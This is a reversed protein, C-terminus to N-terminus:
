RRGIEATLENLANEVKEVIEDIDSTRAILAPSFVLVDGLSRSILGQGLLKQYLKKGVADGAPFPERTAKNEVLEIGALLGM